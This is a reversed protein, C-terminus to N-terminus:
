IEDPVDRLLDFFEEFVRGSKKCVALFATTDQKSVPEDGSQALKQFYKILDESKKKKEPDYIGKAVVKMDEGSKYLVRIFDSLNDWEKKDIDGPNEAVRKTVDQVLIITM